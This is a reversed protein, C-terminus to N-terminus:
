ALKPLFNVSFYLTTRFSEETEEIELRGGHKEMIAKCNNLGIKTSPCSANREQKKKNKMSVILKEEKLYYEVEIEKTFDAYKNINSFLNEFVRYILHVNVHLTSTIDSIKRNVVVGKAELDFLNEELMQVILENGNVEEFAIKMTNSHLLFHEFLDNTQKKLHMAKDFAITLYRSIEEEGKLKERALELYAIVSTLPTKIDHSLTTVLHMNADYAEKEREMKEIVSARLDNIKQAVNAIEDEGQVSVERELNETVQDVQESITVLYRIKKRIGIIFVVFFLLFSVILMTFRAYGEVRYDYGFLLAEVTGDQLQIQYFKMEEYLGAEEKPLKEYRMAGYLTDYFLNGKYFLKLYVDAQELAWADIKELDKLTVKNEDVYTQLEKAYKKELVEIHHETNYRESIRHIGFATTVQYFLFAIGFALICLMLLEKTLSKKSKKM